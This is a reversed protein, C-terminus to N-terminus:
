GYLSIAQHEELVETDVHYTPDEDSEYDSFNLIVKPDDLLSYSTRAGSIVKAQKATRAYELQSKRKSKHPMDLICGIHSLPLTFICLNPFITRKLLILSFIM